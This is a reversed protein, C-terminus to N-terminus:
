DPKGVLMYDWYPHSAVLSDGWYRHPKLWPQWEKVLSGCGLISNPFRIQFISISISPLSKFNSIGGGGGKSTSITNVPSQQFPDAQQDCGEEKEEAQFLGVEQWTM